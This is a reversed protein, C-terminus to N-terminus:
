LDVVIPANTPRYAETCISANVSIGERGYGCHIHGFVHLKPQVRVLALKLEECGVNLDGV